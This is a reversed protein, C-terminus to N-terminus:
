PPAMAEDIEGELDRLEKVLTRLSDAAEQIAHLAANDKEARADKKAQKLAADLHTAGEKADKINATFDRISEVSEATSLSDAIAKAHNLSEELAGSDTDKDLEEVIANAHTLSDSVLGILQELTESENTDLSAKRHDYSYM